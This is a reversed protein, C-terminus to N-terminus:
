KAINRGLMKFFLIRWFELLSGLRSIYRISNVSFWLSVISVKFKGQIKDNYVSIFEAHPLFAFIFSYPIYFFEHLYTQGSSLRAHPWGKGTRFCKNMFQFYRRSPHNVIAGSAFELSFGKTTASKTFQFDGGSKVNSNFLGVSEFVERKVFLNATAAVGDKVTRQTQMHTVSDYIETATPKDSAYFFEVNGAVLDADSNQFHAVGNSIWNKKAICDADIFAIIDGSAKELGKNRAAYSSQINKEFLLTVQYRSIIDATSDSSGNDVVIVELKESPYDQAILSDLLKEIFEQANYVPAIVSVKPLNVSEDM